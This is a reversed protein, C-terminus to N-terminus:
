AILLDIDCKGSLGFTFCAQPRNKNLQGIIDNM